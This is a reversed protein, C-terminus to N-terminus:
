LSIKFRIISWNKNWLTLLLAIFPTVINKYWFLRNKTFPPSDFILNSWDYSTSQMWKHSCFQLKFNSKRAPLFIGFIYYLVRLKSSSKVVKPRVIRSLPSWRKKVRKGIAGLKKLVYIQALFLITKSIKKCKTWHM